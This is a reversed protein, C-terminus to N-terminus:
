SRDTLRRFEADIDCETEVTKHTGTWTGMFERIKNEIELPTMPPQWTAKYEVLEEWCEDCIYRTGDLILRDCMVNPCSRRDCALVSM